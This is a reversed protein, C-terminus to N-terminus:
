AVSSKVPVANKAIAVGAGLLAAWRDLQEPAVRGIGHELQCLWWESVGLDYALTKLPYGQELRLTRLQTMVSSPLTPRM